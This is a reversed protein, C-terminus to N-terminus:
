ISTKVKEYVSYNSSPNASVYKESIEFFCVEKQIFDMFNTSDEFGVERYQTIFTRKVIEEARNLATERYM